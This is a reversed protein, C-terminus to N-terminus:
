APSQDTEPRPNPPLTLSLTEMVMPAVSDLWENSVQMEGEDNIREARLEANRGFARLNALWVSPMSLAAELTHVPVVGVKQDRGAAHVSIARFGVNMAYGVCLNNLECAKGWWQTWQVMTLLPLLLDLIDLSLEKRSTFSYGHQELVRRVEKDSIETPAPLKGGM